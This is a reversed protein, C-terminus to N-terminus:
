ANTLLRTVFKDRIEAHFFKGVSEAKLMREFTSKPVSEYAYHGGKNFTLYLTGDEWAVTAINSSTVPHIQM